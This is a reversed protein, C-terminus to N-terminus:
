VLHEVLGSCAKDMRNAVVRAPEIWETLVFLTLNNGVSVFINENNQCVLTFNIEIKAM